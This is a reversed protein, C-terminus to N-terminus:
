RIGGVTQFRRWGSAARPAVQRADAERSVGPFHMHLAAPGQQNLADLMGAVMPDQAVPARVVHEGHTLSAPIRDVGGEGMVRGGFQFPVNKWTGGQADDALDNGWDSLASQQQGTISMIFSTWLGRLWDVFAQMEAKLRDITTSLMGGLYDLINNGWDNIWNGFQSGLDAVFEAVKGYLILPIQALAVTAEVVFDAWMAGWNIGDRWEQLKTAAADLAADLQPGLTEEYVKGLEVWAAQAAEVETKGAELASTYAAGVRDLQDVFASLNDAFLSFDDAFLAAFGEGVKQQLVDWASTIRELSFFLKAQMKTLASDVSGASEAYQKLVDDVDGLQGAAALAALLGRINPILESLEQVTGDSQDQLEQLLRFIGGETGLAQENFMTLGLREIADAAGDSPAVIQTLLARLSTVAEETSLGARTLLVMSANLDTLGVGAAAAVPVVRGLSGALESGTTKGLRITTFLSDSVAQAQDAELRYSNMVTTMLDVADTAETLSAKAFKMSESLVLMASDQPIGASIVQYLAKATETADVGYQMAFRQVERGYGHMAEASLDTITWVEAMAREFKAFEQVSDSVFSTAAKLGKYAVIVGGVAAAWGAMAKVNMRSGKESAESVDVVRGELEAIRRKADSIETKFQLLIEEKVM